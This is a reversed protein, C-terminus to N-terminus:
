RLSGPQAGVLDEGREAGATHALHIARAIGLKATVNGDFHQGRGEGFVGGAHGAELAFGLRQGREIM